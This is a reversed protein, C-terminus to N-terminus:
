SCRLEQFRIPCSMSPQPKSEGLHVGSSFFPDIFCGADGAIRVYPSAYAPANYSWDSASKVDTVLTADALLPALGPTEKIAELYVGKSDLGSERKRETLVKQNM